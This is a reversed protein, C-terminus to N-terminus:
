GEEIRVLLMKLTLLVHRLARTWTEDSSFQLKISVEGIKDKSVAFPLRLTPERRKAVAMIQRLCDVFAVM